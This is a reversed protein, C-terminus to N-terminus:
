GIHSPLYVNFGIFSLQFIVLINPYVYRPICKAELNWPSKIMLTVVKYKLSRVSQTKVQKTHINKNIIKRESM